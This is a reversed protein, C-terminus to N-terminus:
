PQCTLVGSAGVVCVSTPVVQVPNTSHNDTTNHSDTAHSDTTSSTSSTTSTTTSTTMNAQPAQIKGAIDIFAKNTSIAVQAANNSQTTAVRTNANIGYAQVATPLLVGLWRLAADGPREPAQITAGPDDEHGKDMALGMVAAVKASDSGNQAVSALAKYREAKAEARAKEIALMADAYEKYGTACGALTLAILVTIIIHRM